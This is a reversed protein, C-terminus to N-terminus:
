NGFELERWSLRGTRRDDIGEILYAVTDRGGSVFLFDNGGTGGLTSLDVLQGDLDEQSMLLGASYAQGEFELLDAEDIEGVQHGRQRAFDEGDGLEITVAGVGLIGKVFELVMPRLTHWAAAGKDEQGRATRSTM